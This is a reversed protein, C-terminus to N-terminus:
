YMQSIDIIKFYLNYKFKFTTSESVHVSLSISIHLTSTYLGKMCKNNGGEVDCTYTDGYLGGINRSEADTETQGRGKIYGRGEAAAVQSILRM